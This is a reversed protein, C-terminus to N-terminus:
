HYFPLSLKERMMDESYDSTSCVHCVHRICFKVQIDTYPEPHKVGLKATNNAVWSLTNSGQVFAGEMNHPVTVPGEFVVMLAWVASLRLQM